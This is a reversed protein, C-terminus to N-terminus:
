VIKPVAWVGGLADIEDGSRGTLGVFCGGDGAMLMQQGLATNSSPPADSDRYLPDSASPGGGLHIEGDGGFWGLSSMTGAADIMGNPGYKAWLLEFAQVLTLFPGDQENGWRLNIGVVVYGPPALVPDPTAPMFGDPANGIQTPSKEAPGVTGDANLEAYYPIVARLFKYAIVQQPFTDDSNTFARADFALGVLAKPAGPVDTFPAGGTGGLIDTVTQNTFQVTM